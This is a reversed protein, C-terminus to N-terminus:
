CVVCIYNNNTTKTCVVTLIKVQIILITCQLHCTVKLFMGSPFSVHELFTSKIVVFLNLM